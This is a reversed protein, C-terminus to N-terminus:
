NEVCGVEAAFDGLVEAATRAHSPPLLLPAYKKFIQTAQLLTHCEWPMIECSACVATAFFLACLLARM